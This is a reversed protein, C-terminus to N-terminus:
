AELKCRRECQEIDKGIALIKNQMRYDLDRQRDLNTEDTIRMQTRVDDLQKTFDAKNAFMENYLKLDEGRNKKLEEICKNAAKLEKKFDKNNTDFDRRLDEIMYEYEQKM